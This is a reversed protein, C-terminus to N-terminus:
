RKSAAPRAAEREQAERILEKLKKDAITREALSMRDIILVGDLHDIEHQAVRAPFDELEAEVPRGDADLAELRIKVHREIKGNIEPLSLCGENSKAKEKSKATIKPNVFVREDQPEGSPNMVFLRLSKAVQPAALGVGKDKYMLAIMDRALARVEDTVATVPAAVRRLVPEPYKVIEMEGM